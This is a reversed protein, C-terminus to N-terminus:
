GDDPMVCDCIKADEIDDPEFVQKEEETMPRTKVKHWLIVETFMDNNEENTM